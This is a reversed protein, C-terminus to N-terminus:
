YLCKLLCNGGTFWMGVFLCWLPLGRFVVGLNLRRVYVGLCIVPLWLVYRSVLGWLFCGILWVFILGYLCIVFRFGLGCILSLGGCAAFRM